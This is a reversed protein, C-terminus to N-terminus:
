ARPEPAAPGDPATRTSPRSRPSTSASSTASARYTWAERAWTARSSTASSAAKAFRELAVRRTEKDMGSHIAEIPLGLAALALAAKEVRTAMTLFVLCREPHVAAEFRRAFDLRKRGDCYFCWHEIDRLVPGTEGRPLDGAADRLLPRMERRLREPITASVLVRM